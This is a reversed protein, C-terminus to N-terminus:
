KAVHSPRYTRIATIWGRDGCEYDEDDAKDMDHIRGILEKSPQVEALEDQNKLHILDCTWELLWKKIFKITKVYDLDNTYETVVSIDDKIYVPFAVKHVNTREILPWLENLRAM